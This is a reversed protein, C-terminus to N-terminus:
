KPSIVRAPERRRCWKVSAAAGFDRERVFNDCFSLVLLKMCVVLIYLGLFMVFIYYSPRVRGSGKSADDASQLMQIRHLRVEELTMPAVRAGDVSLTAKTENEYKRISADSTDFLSDKRSTALVAPAAPARFLMSASTVVEDFVPSTPRAPPKRCRLCAIIRARKSHKKKASKAEAESRLRLKKKGVYRQKFARGYYAFSASLEVIISAFCVAVSGLCLALM